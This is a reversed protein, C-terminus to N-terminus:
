VVGVMQMGNSRLPAVPIHLPPQVLNPQSAHALTVHLITPTSGVVDVDQSWSQYGEAEVTIVYKGENLIRYYWGLEDTVASLSRYVATGNYIPAVWIQAKLPSTGNTIVGRIGTHIQSMYDILSDKNNAWFTDLTSALPWKNTSVELTIEM